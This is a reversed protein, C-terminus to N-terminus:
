ALAPAYRIVLMLFLLPRARCVHPHASILSFHGLQVCRVHVTVLAPDQM